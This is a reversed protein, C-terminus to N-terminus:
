TMFKHPSWIFKLYNVILMSGPNKKKSFVRQRCNAGSKSPQLLQEPVFKGLCAGLQSLSKRKLQMLKETMIQQASRPKRRLTPLHFGPFLPTTNQM